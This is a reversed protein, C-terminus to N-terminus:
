YVARSTRLPKSKRANAERRLALAVQIATADIQRMQDPLGVVAALKHPRQLGVAGAIAEGSRDTEEAGLVLANGGGSVGVLAIDFGDMAEDFILEEIQFGEGAAGVKEGLGREVLEVEVEGPGVGM